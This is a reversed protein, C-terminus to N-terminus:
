ECYKFGFFPSLSSNEAFTYRFPNDNINIFLKHLAFCIGEFMGEFMDEFM